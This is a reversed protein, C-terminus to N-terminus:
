KGKEIATGENLIQVEQQYTYYWASMHGVYAFLATGSVDVQLFAKKLEALVAAKDFSSDYLRNAFLKVVTFGKRELLQAVAEASHQFDILDEPVTLPLGALVIAVPTSGPVWTCLWPVGRIRTDLSISYTGAVQPLQAVFQRLDFRKNHDSKM